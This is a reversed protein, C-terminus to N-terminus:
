AAGGRAKTAHRITRRERETTGGWVGVLAPGSAALAYALCEARVPCGACIRRAPDVPEGKGPFFLDPDVERCAGRDQWVQQDAPQTTPPPRYTFAGHRLLTPPLGAPWGPVVFAAATM